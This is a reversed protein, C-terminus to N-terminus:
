WMDPQANGCSVPNLSLASCANSVTSVNKDPDNTEADDAARVAAPLSQLALVRKM